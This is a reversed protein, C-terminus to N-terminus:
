KGSIDKCFGSNMYVDLKMAEITGDLKYGVEFDADVAHRGGTIRMDTNRDLVFRVPKGTVKAGVAAAVAIPIHRTLKGGFGGGVRRCTVNVDKYDVALAKAVSGQVGDPYQMSSGVQFTGDEDPIAFANQPEMYFHSQSKSAMRGTLRQDSLKVALEFFGRKHHRKMGEFYSGRARAEDNTLIPAGDDREYSCVVLRAALRAQLESTALVIGVPQGVFHSYTAFVEEDDFGALSNEGPISRADLFRVVGPLALAAAADITVIKARAETTQAYAAYLTDSPLRVDASYIATGTAQLPANRNPISRAVPDHEANDMNVDQRGGSGGDQVSVASATQLPLTIGSAEALELFFKYCLNKILENRASRHEADAATIAVEAVLTRVARQLTASDVAGANLVAETKPARIATATDIAGFVITADSIKPASPPGPELRVRFAANVLAHENQPRRAVKYSRFFEGEKGLPVFVATLLTGEPFEGEFFKLLPMETPADHSSMMTMIETEARGAPAAATSIDPLYAVRVKAGVGILITALDSEFARTKALMLNGGISGANRVHWGAIRRSHAVMKQFAATEHQPRKPDAVMAELTEGFVAITTAAGIWVGGDNAAAGNLEPVRSIDVVIKPASNHEKYVGVSTNGVM